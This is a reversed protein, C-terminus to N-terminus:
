EMPEFTKSSSNLEATVFNRMGPDFHVGLLEGMDRM